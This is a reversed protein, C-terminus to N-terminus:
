VDCLANSPAALMRGSRSVGYGGMSTTPSFMSSVADCGNALANHSGKLGIWLVAQAIEAGKQAAAVWVVPGHLRFCVDVPGGFTSTAIDTAEGVTYGNHAVECTLGFSRVPGSLPQRVIIDGNKLPAAIRRGPWAVVTVGPDHPDLARALM